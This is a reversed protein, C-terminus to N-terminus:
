ATRKQAAKWLLVLQAAMDDLFETSAWGMVGALAICFERTTSPITAHCIRLVHMNYFLANELSTIYHLWLLLVPGEQTISFALPEKSKHIGPSRRETLEGLRSQMVLMCSGSGAAQNEAKYM